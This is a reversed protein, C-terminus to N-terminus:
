KKIIYICQGYNKEGITYGADELRKKFNKRAVARYNGDSCFICYLKYLDMVPMHDDFTKQYGEESLFLLVSDSELRYRDLMANVQPSETFGKNKLLRHLGEIVWNLVGPLENEIIENHLNKNQKHEPITVAFHLVIWRRFYGNTLEAIPLDNCNFMLKAYDTIDFKDKYLFKAEVPEGSALGKFIVPDFRTSIESAYNLLKHQIQARSNGVNDTLSELSYSTVNSRGFLAMIVEHVVSKGNAGSGYLIMAKETKLFNNGNKLFASALYEAKVMQSEKEPLVENLFKMWRPWKAAPDYPFPLQYMLMDTAKFPLLQAGNRTIELTGNLLNILVRDRSQEPLKTFTNVFFQKLLTEQFQYYEATYKEVGMRNAAEGLFSQIEKETISKWYQGNYIYIRGDELSCINWGKEKAVEMIVANVEIVFHNRKLKMRELKAVIKKLNDRQPKLDDNSNLSGDDNTLQAELAEREKQLEIAKPFVRSFFNIKPIDKLMDPLVSSHSRIVSADPTDSLSELIQKTDTHM